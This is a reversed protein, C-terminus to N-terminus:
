CKERNKRLAKMLAAPYESDASDFGIIPIMLM